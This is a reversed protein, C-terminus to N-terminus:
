ALLKRVLSFLVDQRYPKVLFGDAYTLAALDVQSRTALLVPIRRTEPNGKLAECATVGDMEPMQYDMLILTPREAKVISLAERGNAATRVVLGAKEFLDRLADRIAPDDDVVLVTKAAAQCLQEVKGLRDKIDRVTPVGEEEWGREIEEAVRRNHDRVANWRAYDPADPSVNLDDHTDVTFAYEDSLISEELVLKMHPYRSNGLRLVYRGVRRGGSEECEDEFRGLLDRASEGGSVDVSPARWRAAAPYAHRLYVEVALRVQAAPIEELRM